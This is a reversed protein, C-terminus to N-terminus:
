GVKLVVAMATDGAACGSFLGIGGGKIALEEILEAICRLGTPGQPHGFVLPAGYNNIKEPAVGTENCFYVDNVAIPDHTKIAACDEIAVGARALAQRAAPVVAMPMLGKGVRAEGFSLIQIKIAPDKSLKAAEEETCVVLGANGDAPHTQAGFTVTGGELVPRLKALGETTTEQVGEDAEITAVVKKRRRIEIPAMYRKQFARDDALGQQYQEYRMVATADQEERTIGAEKAVAEATAIMAGKAYPDENFNDFVWQETEGMGGIGKPNPYTLQPGNSTRDCAVNLVNRRNGTEVEMAANALIRASTACAQAVTPGTIGAAGILASFWPSGYFSQKQPVTMGLNLGDFVEPSIGRDQLVSTCTQAALKLSHQGALSGQWRCFPSSWYAGYPVHVREFAM